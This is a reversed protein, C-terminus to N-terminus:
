ILYDRFSLAQTEIIEGDRPGLKSTVSVPATPWFSALGLVRTLLSSDM